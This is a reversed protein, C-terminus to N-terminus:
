YQKILYKSIEGHTARRFKSTSDVIFKLISYRLIISDWVFFDDDLYNM